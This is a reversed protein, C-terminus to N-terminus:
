DRKELQHIVTFLSCVATCFCSLHAAAHASALGTGDKIVNRSSIYWQSYILLRRYLFLIFISRSSNGSDHCFHALTITLDDALYVKQLKQQTHMYCVCVCVCVRVYVYVVHNRHGKMGFLLKTHAPKGLHLPWPWNALVPVHNLAVCAIKETLLSTNARTQQLGVCCDKSYAQVPVHNLAVCAIKVTLMIQHWVHLRQQLHLIMGTHVIWAKKM